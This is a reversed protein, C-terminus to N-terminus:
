RARPRSERAPAARLRSRQLDAVYRGLRQEQSGTLDLFSLARHGFPTGRVVKGSGVLIEGEGLTVAFRVLDGVSLSDARALLMGGVSLDVAEAMVPGRASGAITVRAACSVRFFRRRQMVVEGATELFRLSGTADTLVGELRALGREARWEITAEWLEIGAPLTAPGEVPAVDVYADGSSVVRVTRRWGGALCVDVIQDPVLRPM